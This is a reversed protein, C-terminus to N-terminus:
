TEGVLRGYSPSSPDTDIVGIADRKGSAESALLAVYALTEAPAEAALSPSAYFTPDPRWRAMIDDEATYSRSSTLRDTRTRADTIGSSARLTPPASAVCM